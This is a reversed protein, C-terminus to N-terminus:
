EIWNYEDVKFAPYPAEKHGKDTREKYLRAHRKWTHEEDENDYWGGMGGIEVLEEMGNIYSGVVDKMWDLKKSKIDTRLSNDCLGVLQKYHRGCVYRTYGNFTIKNSGKCACRSVAKWGEDKLVTNHQCRDTGDYTKQKGTARGKKTKILLREDEKSKFVMGMEFMSPLRHNWDDEDENLAGNDGNYVTRFLWRNSNWDSKLHTALKDLEAENSPVLYEVEGNDDDVVVFDIELYKKEEVVVKKEKKTKKTKSDEIEEQLTLLETEKDCYMRKHLENNQTMEHLRQQLQEVVTKDERRREFLRTILWNKTYGTFQKPDITPHREVFDSKLRRGVEGTWETMDMWKELLFTEFIRYLEDKPIDDFNSVMTENSNDTINSVMENTDINSTNNNNNSIM